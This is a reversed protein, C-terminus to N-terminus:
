ADGGGGFLIERAKAGIAAIEPVYGGYNVEYHPEVEELIGTEIRGTKTLVTAEQGVEADQQLSGRVWLLLPTKATDQPITAAREEPTLVTRRVSVWTGKCAM